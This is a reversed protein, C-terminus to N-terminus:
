RRLAPGATAGLSRGVDPRLCRHAPLRQDPAGEGDARQDGTVARDAQQCARPRRAGLVERERDTLENSEARQGRASLLTRAAKPDLPSEGRAAARIGRLLEEPEVDKLLYGVAGADLADLIRERDSFSTLIVVQIGPDKALIGEEPAASVDFGTGDDRVTLAVGSRGTNIHVGVSRPDAHLLANRVAEQAVRFVLAEADAPLVLTSPVDLDVAVGRGTLPALLDTLAAALGASRLSPPYIEVLLSRLTRISQRVGGAANYLCEADHPRDSKSIRDACGVLAYSVGALDQVVGDHLDSAIRRREIESAAIAKRLM